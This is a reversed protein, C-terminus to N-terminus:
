RQKFKMRNGQHFGPYLCLFWLIRYVGHGADTTWV